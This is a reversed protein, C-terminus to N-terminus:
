CPLWPFKSGSQLVGAIKKILRRQVEADLLFSLWWAVVGDLTRAHFVSDEVAVSEVPGRPFRARFAAVIAPPARVRLVRCPLVFFAALGEDSRQRDPCAVQNTKLPQKESSGLRRKAPM